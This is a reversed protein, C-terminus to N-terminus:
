EIVEVMRHTRPDVLVTRGNVITYRHERVGYEPPV